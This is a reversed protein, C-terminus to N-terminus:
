APDQAEQRRALADRRATGARHDCPRDRRQGRDSLVLGPIRDAGGARTGIGFWIVFVPVVAVKPFATSASSSRISGAISSARRDSRSASCVRRARGRDCLRCAHAAADDLFQEIIPGFQKYLSAAISPRARCCSSRCARLAICALEWIAAAPRPRVALAPRSRSRENM